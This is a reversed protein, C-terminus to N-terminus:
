DSSDSERKPENFVETTIGRRVATDITHKTGKSRGDWFALVLDPNTDLMQINRKFGASRGFQEWDPIFVRVPVFNGRAWNGAMTDAGAAGGHIIETIKMGPHHLRGLVRHITSSDKWGRSGCVLVRM